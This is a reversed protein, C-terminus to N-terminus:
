FKKGTFMCKNLFYFRRREMKSSISNNRPPNLNSNIEALFQPLFNIFIINTLFLLKLPMKRTFLSFYLRFVIYLFYLLFVFFYLCMTNWRHISENDPRILVFVIKLTIGLNHINEKYKQFILIYFNCFGSNFFDSNIKFILVLWFLFWLLDSYFIILFIKKSHDM